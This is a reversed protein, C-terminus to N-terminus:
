ADVELLVKPTTTLNEHGDATVAVLDEIRVGGWGEYYLGPEVSFVMGIDIKTQITKKLRPAEHIALGVGHGTGHQFADACGKEAFFDRCLADLAHGTRGPRIGDLCRQQAELVLDYVERMRQDAKGMVLMRTMDGCYGEYIAGFDLLVLQGKELKRDASPLYHPNCSTEGFAVIADFSNGESHVRLYNGIELAVDRESMGPRIWGAVHDFCDGTIKQAKRIREIEDRTKIVRLGSLISEAPRWALDQTEALLAAGDAYLVADQEFGITKAKPGLLSRIRAAIISATTPSDILQATVGSLKKAGAIYRGDCLLDCRDPQVLVFGEPDGFPQVEGPMMSHFGSLYQVNKPNSVFVADLGADAMAGRLRDVRNESM